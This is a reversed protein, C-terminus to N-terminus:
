KLGMFVFKRNRKGLKYSKEELIYKEAKPYAQWQETGWYILKSNKYFCAPKFMRILEIEHLSARTVFYDIDFDTKRVFTRWDINIIEINELKFRNILFKLFKQRKNNVEILYVKLHPFMIKLPIIPFGAGPGIDALSKVKTLDVFKRIEISDQFHQRVIGGINTIATLNFKKNWERLIDSYDKFIALQSDTLGERKQFALFVKDPNKEKTKIM